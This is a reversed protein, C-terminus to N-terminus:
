FRPRPRAAKLEIGKCCAILAHGALHKRHTDVVNRLQQMPVSLLVPIRAPVSGLDSSVTVSDPLNIGPLYRSNERRIQMDRTQGADRGWQFVPTGDKGLAVALATGFAGTGLICIM